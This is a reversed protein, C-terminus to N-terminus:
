GGFRVGAVAGAVYGSADVDVTNPGVDVSVEDELWEYGGWAGAFLGNSFEINVGGTVGAGFILEGESGRDSWSGLSASSGDSYSRTFTEHRSVDVDVYNASVRPTVSLTVSKGVQAGLQSGIWLSHIDSQISMDIFNRNTWERQSRLVTSEQSRSATSSSPGYPIVPGGSAGAHPAAPMTIGSVDYTLTGTNSRYITYNGEVVHESFTSGSMQAKADWIGSLGVCFDIQFTEAEMLPCGVRFEVGNGDFTESFTANRDQMVTPTVTYLSAVDRAHSYNLTLTRQVPDYQGSQEYGWNWTYGFTPSLFDYTGSDPLVYGNSFSRGSAGHSYDFEREEYRVSQTRPLAQSYSSGSTEAKMGGRYTPGVDFWINGKAENVAFVCLGVGIIVSFFTAYKM